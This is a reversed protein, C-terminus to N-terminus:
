KEFFSLIKTLRDEMNRDGFIIAILGLTLISLMTLVLISVLGMCLYFLFYGISETEILITVKYGLWYLCSINLLVWTLYGLGLMITRM